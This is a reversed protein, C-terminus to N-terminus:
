KLASQVASDDPLGSRSCLISTHGDSGGAVNAGADLWWRLLVTQRWSEGGLLTDSCVVFVLGWGGIENWGTM